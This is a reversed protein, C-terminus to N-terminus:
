KNSFKATKIIRLAFLKTLHKLEEKTKITKKM